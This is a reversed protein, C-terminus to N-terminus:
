NLIMFSFLHFFACYTAAWVGTSYHEQFKLFDMSDDILMSTCISLAVFVLSGVVFRIRHAKLPEKEIWKRIREFKSVLYIVLATILLLGIVIMKMTM